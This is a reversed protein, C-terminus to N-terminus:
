ETRLSRVPNAIAAKIAHISVSLLAIIVALLGAAMFLWATLKIRYAFEQLWKNMVWWAVPTAIVIAIFVLTIFDKSLLGTIQQVSAGLVKRIGIEKTRQETTFAALGFLGMASLIVAIVSFILILRSTKIDNKYLTNFNDDLFNYNFPQDSVFKNWVNEVAHIAAQINGPATKIFFYSDSGRNYSLVLPGIKEHMSKFYFDKVIGIIRGTDGGFTFRQGIVPKHMNFLGAATENLIYNHYDETGAKFWRGDKMQLQFMKQFGADASLQTVSPNFTTDRGDWDANGSSIGGINVIESGGSCVSAINSKSQLENKFTMFFRARGKEDPFADYVKYPIQISMVQAVNYGPNTTQMYKLQSYIILTGTILIMSLTFQFVVLGKRVAGDSLKLISKGRFVYLPKFSSLLLAPYLGNLITSFILTGGLVKWMSPSTVPLHFNKETITNFLPLCLQILVFAIVLGSLSIILSEVVFQFFLHARKAGVIKKVSVEKARLSAKATTLNVYNICATVLLLIGLLSFIYTTKKNGHPMDSSQLDTEFYMGNLLQLSVDINDNDRKSKLLTNLRKEISAKNVGPRLQLFTTYGFNNWGKDNKLVAPNSLRGDMQLLIDFRFSSNVPNDKIIGQVTYNVTDVKIVQGIANAKGFYKKAKSETLIVSFPDKEFAATNGAVFDYHFIKFWTKDIWATTKETFAKHNINLLPGGWSNIIVMASRQVEPIDKVATEGMLMPSSEWVWTEDKNVKVANTIRYINEKGPHYNDFSLENQVWLFIFVAATMGISLGFLNILSTAKNKWLTRWATKLYNRFM